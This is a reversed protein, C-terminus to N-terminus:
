SFINEAESARISNATKEMESVMKRAAKDKGVAQLAEQNVAKEARALERLFAKYQEANKYANRVMSEFTKGEAELLKLYHELLLKIESMQKQRIGSSYVGRTDPALISATKEEIRMIVDQQQEGKKAIDLAGELALKKTFLFNLSFTASGRKYRFFNLIFIFPIMFAWVTLQPIKVVRAAVAKALRKEWALISDYKTDLVTPLIGRM